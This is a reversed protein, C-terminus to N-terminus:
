ITTRVEFNNFTTGADYSSAMWVSTSDNGTNRSDYWVFILQGTSQDVTCWPYYQNFSQDDNVLVPSTWTTGGDTSKIMVIDPDAGAPAVGRQPWTIYINGNTRDVAMSPFSSTRIDGAGFNLYGRIGFNFNGNPTLAGYIRASTWTDGGDTSKAFGIADEPATQSPFNDYIAFAVYVEGNPGTQVNAGQSHSGANLSTSLNRSTSWSVGDNTSYRLVVDNNNAGGFDTWAVYVRDEYPSGATKDVTM